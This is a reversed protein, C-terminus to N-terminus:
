ERIRGDVLEATTKRRFKRYVNAIKKFLGTFGFLFYVYTLKYVSSIAFRVALIVFGEPRWKWPLARLSQRFFYFGFGAGFGVYDFTASREYWRDEYRIIQRFGREVALGQQVLARLVVYSDLGTTFRDLSRYPRVAERIVETRFVAYILVAMEKSLLYSCLLRKGRDGHLTIKYGESNLLVPHGAADVYAINTAATGIGADRDLAAACVELFREEMRYDDPFWAFYPCDARELVFKFNNWAGINTEQRHYTIRPDAAVYERCISPTADTSCNDSIFLKWGTHTQRRVSDLAERLHEAGNYTPLGIFIRSM